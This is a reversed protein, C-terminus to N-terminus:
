RGSEAWAPQWSGTPHIRFYIEEGRADAARGGSGVAADRERSPAEKVVQQARLQEQALQHLADLRRQQGDDM